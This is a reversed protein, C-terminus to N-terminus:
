NRYYGCSSCLITCILIRKFRVIIMLYKDDTIKSAFAKKMGSSLVGFLKRQESPAETEEEIHRITEAILTLLQSMNLM